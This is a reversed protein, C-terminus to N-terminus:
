GIKGEIPEHRPMLRQEIESTPAALEIIEVAMFEGTAKCKEKKEELWQPNEEYGFEDMVELAEPAYQGPYNCKRQGFLVYLIM